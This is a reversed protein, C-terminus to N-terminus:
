AFVQQWDQKSCYKILVLVVAIEKIFVTNIIIPLIKDIIVLITVTIFLNDKHYMCSYIFIYIYAYTYRYMCVYMCVYM